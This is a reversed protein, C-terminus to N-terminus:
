SLRQSRYGVQRRNLFERISRASTEWESIKLGEDNVTTRQRVSCSPEEISFPERQRAYILLENRVYVIDGDPYLPWWVLFESWSPEQYSSILASEKGDGILRQCAERWHQEYHARTWSVLSAVFTETYDEIQIKGYVPQGESEPVVDDTLYIDFM